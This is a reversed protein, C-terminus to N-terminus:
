DSHAKSPYCHQLRPMADFPPSPVKRAVWTFLKSRSPSSSTLLDPHM